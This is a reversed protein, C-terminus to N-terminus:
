FSKLVRLRYNETIRRSRFQNRILGFLPQAVTLAAALPLKPNQFPPTGWIGWEFLLYGFPSFTTLNIGVKRKPRKYIRSVESLKIEIYEYRNSVENLATVVFSSDTVSYIDNEYLFGDKTRCLFVDGAYFRNRKNSRLNEIVLYNQKNFITRARNPDQKYIIEEVSKAERQHFDQAFTSSNIFTIFTILKIFKTFRFFTIFNIIPLKVKM